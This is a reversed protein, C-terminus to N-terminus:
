AKKLKGQVVEMAQDIVNAIGYFYKDENRLVDDGALWCMNVIIERRKLLEPSEIAAISIDNRTPKRIWCKKGDAEYVYIERHKSKWQAVQEATPEIMIENKKNAM